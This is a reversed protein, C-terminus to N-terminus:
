RRPWTLSLAKIFDSHPEGNTPCLYQKQTETEGKPARRAGGFPCGYRFGDAVKCIGEELTLGPVWM